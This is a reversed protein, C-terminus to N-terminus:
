QLHTLSRGLLSLKRLINFFSEFFMELEAKLHNIKM